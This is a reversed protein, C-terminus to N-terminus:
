NLSMSRFFNWKKRIIMIGLIANAERLDKMDFEANLLQNVSNVVHVNSGFILLDDM